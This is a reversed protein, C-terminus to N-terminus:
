QNWLRQVKWRSEHNSRFLTHNPQNTTNQENKHHQFSKQKSNASSTETYMLQNRINIIFKRHKFKVPQSAQFTAPFQRAQQQINLIHIPWGQNNHQRSGAFRPCLRRNLPSLNTSITLKTTARQTCASTQTTQSSNSTFLTNNYMNQNPKCSNTRPKHSVRRMILLLHCKRRLM